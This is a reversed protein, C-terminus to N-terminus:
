ITTTTFTYCTLSKRRSYFLVSLVKHFSADYSNHLDTTYINKTKVSYRYGTTKSM